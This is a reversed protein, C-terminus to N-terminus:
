IHMDVGARIKSPDSGSLRHVLTGNKFFLITPVSSIEYTNAVEPVTEINMKAFVANAYTKSMAAFTPALVKCPGCWTAYMDIVVLKSATGVTQQFQLKSKIELVM